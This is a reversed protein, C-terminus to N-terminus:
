CTRGAVDMGNQPSKPKTNFPRGVIQAAPKILRARFALFGRCILLLNSSADRESDGREVNAPRSRYSVYPQSATTNEQGLVRCPMRNTKEERFTTPRVIPTVSYIQYGHVHEFKRRERPNHFPTPNYMSSCLQKRAPAQKAQRNTRVTCPKHPM